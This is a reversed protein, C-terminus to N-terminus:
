RFFPFGGQRSMKERGQSFQKMLKKTQEFQKLLRNIDQVKIGSGLAIRKRRSGDIIIPNQREKKTMSNIIAEVKVLEKENVALDQGKTLKNMGPIMGMLQELSGMKKVQQLQDLFDDLTFEQNRLKKELSKAKELDVNAQVKEILSLMDGMDLIRSAMRDPHFPEFADFKEGMGAFKIPKGTIAKVSLAAGGRSDGDLKTMIVGDIGLKHHFSEAVNVADQGTMADVVLLIEHPKVSTKISLLEEMLEENIHLRGATDLIVLDYGKTRAYEVGAKAIDPPSTQTGMTFVPVELQEGVVQLQKVAAPRYVDAAVLCSTKGQKKFYNALKGATTTKGAGQLGVLMIITPSKSAINLKSQSGGMLSTLEAYVIKIVQQAPTFSSLVEQGISKEQVRNIFEKAVKFNVDAELLSIRVERLAAKVDQETLKGKSKLKRFTEQLKAALGEFVMKKGGQLFDLEDRM